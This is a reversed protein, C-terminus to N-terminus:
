EERRIAWGGHLNTPPHTLFFLKVVGQSKKGPAVTREQDHM